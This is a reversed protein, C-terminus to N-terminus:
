LRCEGPQERYPQLSDRRRRFQLAPGDAAAGVPDELGLRWLAYGAPRYPDAAHIQNFVTVGDLFWVQHTGDSDEYSFHPNNTAPDFLVQAGNDRAATMADEFSDVKTAGGKVWDYGYSGIAIITSDAPLQKMRKDLINEYWDEGAIAGAAGSDDHQDYAMLITYDVINAYTQYPWDDDDFPAAQAIIWDHPAFAASM